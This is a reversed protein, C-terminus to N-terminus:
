VNSRDYNISIQVNCLHLCLPVNQEKNIRAESLCCRNMHPTDSSISIIIIVIKIYEIIFNINLIIDISLIHHALRRM